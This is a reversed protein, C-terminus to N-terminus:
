LETRQLAELFIDSTTKFEREIESKRIKETLKEYLKNYQNSFYFYLTNKLDKKNTSYEGYNISDESLICNIANVINYGEVNIKIETRLTSLASMTNYLNIFEVIDSNNLYFFNELVLSSQRDKISIFNKNEDILEVYSSGYNDNTFFERVFGHYLYDKAM